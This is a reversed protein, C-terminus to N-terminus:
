VEKESPRIELIGPMDDSCGDVYEDLVLMANHVAMPDVKDRIIIHIADIFNMMKWINPKRHRSLYCAGSTMSYNKSWGTSDPWPGVKIENTNPNWAIMAKASKM